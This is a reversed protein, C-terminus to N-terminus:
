GGWPQKSRGCYWVYGRRRLRAAPSLGAAVSRYVDMTQWAVQQWTYQHALHLGLERRRAVAVADGLMLSLQGAIDAVLMPDALFAAGGVVEVISSSRAALLPTGCAMAELATLGFGEYLSPLAAVSAINYFKVLDAESVAGIMHLREAVGLEAGLQRMETVIERNHAEGVCLLDLDAVSGAIEAFARLLRAFNKRRDFSGVYLLYRHARDLGYRSYFSGEVALPRFVAHDVALPVVSIRNPAYGLHKVVMQRTYQSDAILWAARRLGRMALYDCLRQAPHNYSSLERDHRLMYPIIDHVTVITSRRRGLLAIGLTQTTLHTITEGQTAIHTPYSNFFTQLDWGLRAALPAARLLASPPKAVSTVIELDAPALMRLADSLTTVYRSTGSLASPRSVMNVRLRQEYSATLASPHLLKDAQM